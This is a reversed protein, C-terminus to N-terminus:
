TSSSARQIPTASSRPVRASASNRVPSLALATLGTTQSEARFSAGGLCPRRAFPDRARSRKVPDFRDIGIRQPWDVFELRTVGQSFTTSFHGIGQAFNNPITVPFNPAGPGFTYLPNAAGQAGAWLEFDPFNAGGTCTGCTRRSFRGISRSLISRRNSFSCSNTTGLAVGLRHQDGRGHRRKSHIHGGPHFHTYDTPSTAGDTTGLTVRPGSSPDKNAHGDGDYARDAVTGYVKVFGSGFVGDLYSQVATNSGIGGTLTVGEFDIVIAAAPVTVAMAVITTAIALTKRIIKM